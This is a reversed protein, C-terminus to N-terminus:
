LEVSLAQSPQAQGAPSGYSTGCPPCQSEMERSHTSDGLTQRETPFGPRIAGGGAEHTLPLLPGSDPAQLPDCPLCHM